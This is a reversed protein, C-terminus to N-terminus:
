RESDFSLSRSLTRLARESPRAISRGCIACAVDDCPRAFAAALTRMPTALDVAPCLQRLSPLGREALERRLESARRRVDDEYHEAARDPATARSGEAASASDERRLVRVGQADVLTTAVVDAQPM